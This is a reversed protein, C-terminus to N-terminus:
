SPASSSAQPANLHPGIASAYLAVAADISNKLVLTAHDIEAMAAPGPIFVIERAPGTESFTDSLSHEASVATEHPQPTVVPALELALRAAQIAAAQAKQEALAQAAAYAQQEALQRAALQAAEEAQRQALQRAAEEALRQAHLRAAEEAQRQAFQRAAEEAQRQAQQRAAEDAQHQARLRAAEQLHTILASIQTVFSDLLLACEYPIHRTVLAIKGRGPALINQQRSWADIQQPTMREPRPTYGTRVKALKAAKLSAAVDRYKILVDIEPMGATSGILESVESQLLQPLQQLLAHLSTM